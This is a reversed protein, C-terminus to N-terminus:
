RPVEFVMEPNLGELFTRTEQSHFKTDSTEICLFFKDRSALEFEPVNFLPNYPKPLGNMVIMSIVATSAACLVTMEFTIPIWSPWSNLPRGAINLPYSFVNAYYQM